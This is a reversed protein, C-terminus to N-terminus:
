AKNPNRPHDSPWIMAWSNIYFLESGTGPRGDKDCEGRSFYNQNNRFSAPITGHEGVPALALRGLISTAPVIYIVPLPKPQYLQKTGSFASERWWAPSTRHIASNSKLTIHASFTQNLHLAELKGGRHLTM